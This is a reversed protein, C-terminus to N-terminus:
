GITVKTGDLSTPANVGSFDTGAWPRSDAALNFGYIEIWSGPAIAPFAGFAGASAIGGSKISPLSGASSGTPTLARVRGNQLDAIYIVGGAGIALGAPTNLMANTA